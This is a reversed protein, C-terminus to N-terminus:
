HELMVGQLKLTGLLCVLFLTRTFGAEPEAILYGKRLRDSSLCQLCLVVYTCVTPRETSLQLSGVSARTATLPLKTLTTTLAQWKQQTILEINRNRRSSHHVVTLIISCAERLRRDCRHESLSVDTFADPVTRVLM